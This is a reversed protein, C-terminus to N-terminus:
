VLKHNNNNEKEENHTPLKHSILVNTESMFTNFVKFFQESVIYKNNVIIQLLFDKFLWEQWAVFGCKISIYFKIVPLCFKINQIKIIAIRLRLNFIFM